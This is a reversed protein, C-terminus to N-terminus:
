FSVWVGLTPGVFFCGKLELKTAWAWHVVPARHFTPEPTTARAWGGQPSPSLCSARAWALCALRVGLTPTAHGAPQAHVGVGRPSPSEHGLGVHEPESATLDWM